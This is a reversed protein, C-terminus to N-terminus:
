CQKAGRYAAYTAAIGGVIWASPKHILIVGYVVCSVGVLAIIDIYWNKM